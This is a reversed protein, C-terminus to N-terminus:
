GQFDRLYLLLGAQTRRLPGIVRLPLDRGGAARYRAMLRDYAGLEDATAPQTTGTPRDFQVKYAPAFPQLTVREGILPGALELAGNRERINARIAVEVGRLDYSGNAIQTIQEAWREIPPLRDGPLVVEATADEANAIPRVARVGDLRRLAEYAGGWCAGLGYPCRSTLGLVVRTGATEATVARDLEATSLRAEAPVEMGPRAAARFAAALARGPPAAVRLIKAISPVGAKNLLFLMCPGPPCDDPGAPATIALGDSTAHFALFNIRQDMNFAHTVSSLRVLSVRAIDDPRSTAVTFGQGYAVTEPAAALDPRPGRFLYPPHYIQADRHSDQPPNPADTSDPRYEGGGASLVTADPLLIATSHYCRDVAEAALETWRGTAPDWLEATHVPQGPTLDNFGDNKGGGGQTGGTVLVTGDPLI